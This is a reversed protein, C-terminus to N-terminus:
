SAIWAGSSARWRWSSWKPTGSARSWRFTGTSPAWVSAPTAWRVHTATIHQIGEGVLAHVGRDVTEPRVYAKILRM